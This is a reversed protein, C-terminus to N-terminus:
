GSFNSLRSGGIIAFMSCSQVSIYIYIYLFRWRWWLHAGGACYPKQASSAEPRASRLGVRLSCLRGAPRPGMSLMPDVPVRRGRRAALRSTPHGASYHRRPCHRHVTYMAYSALAASRSSTRGFCPTAARRLWRKDRVAAYIYM